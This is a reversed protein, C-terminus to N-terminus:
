LDSSRAPSANQKALVEATSRGVYEKEAEKDDPVTIVYEKLERDSMDNFPKHNKRMYERIERISMAAFNPETM